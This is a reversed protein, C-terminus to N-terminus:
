SFVAMSGLGAAFFLLCYRDHADHLRPLLDAAGVYVFSGAAVGLVAGIAEPPLPMASYFSAWVGLPTASALILAMAIQQRRTWQAGQLLSTLTLGDAFKHLAVGLSIVGGLFFSQRLGVGMAMGDLGAHATLAILASVSVVPARPAELFDECAHVMTVNELAFLGAFMVVMAVGAWRPALSFAEPMLHLFAIGLLVGSGFAVLRWLHKKTWQVNLMPLFSGALTTTFALLCYLILPKM